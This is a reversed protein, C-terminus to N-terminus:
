INEQSNSESSDNQYDAEALIAGLHAFDDFLVDKKSPSYLTAAPHFVPFVKFRGADHIRGRLATIGHNTKLIFRTAFNGLTVIIDPNIVRTQERLFDSCMEIEEVKPNRNSPPRCKLVNAIYVDDRSLNAVKLLEDLLKGAAGVFPEGKIDENKGPAEGVIMVRASPNGSGVVVNTRGQCLPCKRCKEIRKSIQELSPTDNDKPM